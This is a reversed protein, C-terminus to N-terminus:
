VIRGCGVYEACSSGARNSRSEGEKKKKQETGSIGPYTDADFYLRCDPPHTGERGGAGDRLLDSLRGRTEAVSLQRRDRLKAAALFREFVSGM